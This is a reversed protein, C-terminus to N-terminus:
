IVLCAPLKKILLNARWSALWSVNSHMCSVKGRYLPMLMNKNEKKRNKNEKRELEVNKQFM